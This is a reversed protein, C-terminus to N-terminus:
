RKGFLKEDLQLIRNYMTTMTIFQQSDNQGSSPTRLDPHIEKVANRYANKIDKIGAGVSLGFAQLGREYEDLDPSRGMSTFKHYIKEEETLPDSHQPQSAVQGADRNKLFLYGVLIIMFVIPFLLLLPDLYLGSAAFSIKDTLSVATKVEQLKSRAQEKFGKKLLAMVFQKRISDNLVSPDPRLSVVLDLFKEADTFRGKSLAAFTQNELQHTYDSRITEDKEAISRLLLSVQLDNLIGITEPGLARLAQDVLQYTTESRRTIEVRTLIRLAQDPKGDAIQRAAFKHLSKVFFPGLNAKLFADDRNTEILSYVADAEGITAYGAAKNYADNLRKLSNLRDDLQGYVVEAFQILGNSLATDGAVLAVELQSRLEVNLDDALKNKFKSYNAQAWVNDSIGSFILMVASVSSCFFIEDTNSLISQFLQKSNTIRSLERVFSLYEVERADPHNALAVLGSHARTILGEGVANLVIAQIELTSLTASHEFYKQVIFEDLKDKSVLWTQGFLTLKYQGEEVEQLADIKLDVGSINVSEALCHGVGLLIVLLLHLLKIRKM